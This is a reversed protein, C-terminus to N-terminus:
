DGKDEDLWFEIRPPDGFRKKIVATTIQSDQPYIFKELADCLTKAYNDWDPKTAPLTVRRPTSKPRPRYFIAHLKLPMGAPFPAKEQLEQHVTYRIFNEVTATNTPTFAGMKGTRRNFFVRARAKGVPEVLVVLHIM